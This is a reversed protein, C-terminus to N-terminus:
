PSYGAPEETWSITWALISSYTAIGEELPDEWGLSQVWVDGIDRAICASEKGVSSGPLWEDTIGWYFHFYTFLIVLSQLNALSRDWSCWKGKKVFSFPLQSEWDSFLFMLLILTKRRLLHHHIESSKDMIKLQFGHLFLIRKYYIIISWSFFFHRETWENLQTWSYAVERDMVLEQLKSLSMDTSNATWDDWGRNDGEGGVM